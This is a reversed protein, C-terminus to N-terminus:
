NVGKYNACYLFTIPVDNIYYLLNTHYLNIQWTHLQM